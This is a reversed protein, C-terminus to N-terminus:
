IHICIKGFQSGTALYDLAQRLQALPFVRDVIPRLRHLEIAALMHEFQERSGVTVGQLRINQMVVHALNFDPKAGSLVGILSITGGVRVAIRM